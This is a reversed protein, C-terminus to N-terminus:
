HTRKQNYIALERLPEAARGWKAISRIADDTLKKLYANTAEIGLLAPYSGAEIHEPHFDLIDDAVQFALGLNEAYLGVQRLQESNAFCLIAAGEAAIRILAGTKMRHMTELQSLTIQDAKSRMDVAQGGVMGNLGAAKALERIARLGVTPEAEYAESVVHFAETLLADGALLAVAEGYVKHNTPLGRRFDDNDMVPLDDHILSYTHIMEVAAGFALVREASAGLGEAVMMSLVPRFRKGNQLSSYRVSDILNYIGPDPAPAPRNFHRSIFGEVLLAKQAM